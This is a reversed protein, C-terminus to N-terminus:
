NEDSFKLRFDPVFYIMVGHFGVGSPDNTAFYLYSEDAFLASVPSGKSSIGNFDRNTEIYEPSINYIYQPMFEPDYATSIAIIQSRGSDTVYRGSFLVDFLGEKQPNMFLGLSPFYTDENVAGIRTVSRGSLLAYGNFSEITEACQLSQVVDEEDEVVM